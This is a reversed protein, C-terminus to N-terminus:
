ELFGRSRVINVTSIQSKEEYDRYPMSVSEINYMYCIEDVYKRSNSVHIVPLMLAQDYGRQFWKGDYNKFNSDDIKSLLSSKFTRLHSSSWPYSYPDVNEPIPLTYEHSTGAPCEFMNEDVLPIIGRRM